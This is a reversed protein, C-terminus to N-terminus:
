EENLDWRTTFITEVDYDYKLERGQYIKFAISTPSETYIEFAPHTVRDHDLRTFYLQVKAKEQKSYSMFHLVKDTDTVYMLYTKRPIVESIKDAKLFEAGDFRYVTYEMFTESGVTRERGTKFYYSNNNNKWIDYIVDVSEVSVQKKEELDYAYWVNNKCVIYYGTDSDYTISDYEYDLLVNIEASQMIKVIGWKQSDYDKVIYVNNNFNALEKTEDYSTEKVDAFRYLIKPDKKDFQYLYITRVYGNDGYKIDQTSSDDILAYKNHITAFKYPDRKTLPDTGIIDFRDWGNTAIACDQNSNICKYTGLLDTNETSYFYLLGMYKDYRRPNDPITYGTEVKPLDNEAKPRQTTVWFPVFEERSIVVRNYIRYVYGLGIWEEVYGDPYENEGSKVHIALILPKNKTYRVYNIGLLIFWLIGVILLTLEIIKKKTMKQPANYM